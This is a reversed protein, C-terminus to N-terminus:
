KGFVPYGDTDPNSNTLNTQYGGGNPDVLWIDYDGDRGSGVAIAMKDPSWAATFEDYGTDPSDTLKTVVNTAINVKHLQSSRGLYRIRSFAIEQSDPSWAPESDGATMYEGAPPCTVPGIPNGATDMLYIVYQTECNAETPGFKTYAITSGGPSWAPHRSLSSGSVNTLQTTTGAAVDIKFIEIDAYSTPDLSIDREFVIKNGDPSWSPWNGSTLLTVTNDSLNLLRIAANVALGDPSTTFALTNGVPSIAIKGLYYADTNEYVV